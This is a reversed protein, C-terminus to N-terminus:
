AVLGGVSDKEMVVGAQGSGSLAEIIYSVWGLTHVRGAVGLQILTLWGVGLAWHGAM